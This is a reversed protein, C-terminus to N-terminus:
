AKVGGCSLFMRGFNFDISTMHFHQHGDLGGVSVIIGDKGEYLTVRGVTSEMGGGTKSHGRGPAHIMPPMMVPPIARM